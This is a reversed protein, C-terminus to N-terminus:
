NNIIIDKGLEIEDQKNECYFFSNMPIFTLEGLRVENELEYLDVRVFKFDSSLKKSYEKMLEFFKPKSYQYTPHPKSLCTFNLSNWNMDFFNRYKIENEKLSVYVYKPKGNYCLFKYNKLNFGIFKEVFIKKKIFSYHFETGFKGYDIKMWKSLKKKMESINLNTKNDVLINFGSGHNTKIIFKEPLENLNIQESNDYIKLIENCIDKGLKKISYEHLLIKDSCNGKLENVDNIALWNLKDEFTIINLKNYIRKNRKLFKLRKRYYFNIINYKKDFNIIIFIIIIILLIFSFSNKKHFYNSFEIIQYESDISNRLKKNKM